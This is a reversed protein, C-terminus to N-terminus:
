NRSGYSSSWEYCKSNIRIAKDFPVDLFKKEDGWDFDIADLQEKREPLHKVELSGDRISEVISGLKM